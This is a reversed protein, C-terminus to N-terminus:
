ENMLENTIEYPRTEVKQKINDDSLRGTMLDQKINQKIDDSPRGTMLDQKLRRNSIIVM